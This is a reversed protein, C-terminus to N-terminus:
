CLFSFWVLEMQSMEYYEEFKAEDFDRVELIELNRAVSYDIKAGLPGINILRLEKLSNECCRCHSNVDSVFDTSSKGKLNELQLIQKLCGQKFPRFENAVFIELKKCFREIFDSWKVDLYGGKLLSM